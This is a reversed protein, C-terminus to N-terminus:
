SEGRDSVQPDIFGVVLDTILSVLIFLTAVVLLGAQVVPYNRQNIATVILRGVGPLAFLTEVVIAGGLLVGFQIGIVTAIPTAANRLAHRYVISRERTGKARLYVIFPRGIVGLMAGRTTRIIYAAEAVALTLVPLIMYTLNGGPDETFPVYGSPPLWMMTGACVLVLMIGLWFDPVSIGFVVFGETLRRAWRGGVAARVGLPVGVAVALLMSLLTIELTVPVRQALLESLPAKSVFDQGFDGHLLGALWDRYQVWLPDDLHLQARVQAISEPTARFGLMTRVPDGPVLRIILFIVVSMVFLVPITLGLRRLVFLLRPNM